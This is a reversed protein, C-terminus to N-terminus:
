LQSGALTLSQCQNKQDPFNLRAFEGFYKIAAADYARAADEESRFYGLSLRRGNATIQAKWRTSWRYWYVGKYQSTGKQRKRNQGNQSRTAVRLNSRRNNLGDGDIHDVMEGPGAEMLFRHLSISAEAKTDADYLNGTAYWNENKWGHCAFWKMHSIKEYDNLDVVTFMGKSLPIWVEAKIKTEM